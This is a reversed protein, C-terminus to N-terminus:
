VLYNNYRQRENQFIFFTIITALIFFIGGMTPTGSKDYHEKVYKLIPQVGKIKKSLPIFIKGLVISITISTLLVAIYIKM